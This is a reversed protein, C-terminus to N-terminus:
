GPRHAKLRLDLDDVDVLHGSSCRLEVGVRCQCGHHRLEVRAGDNEWNDGWQMLAVLVPLFGSGKLTLRYRKRTRQGPEQYDERDLLGASVLEALREAAVAESAGTREVFDDFRSTGYFAERLILIASRTGVVELAKSVSCPDAAWGSRPDLRGTMRITSNMPDNYARM